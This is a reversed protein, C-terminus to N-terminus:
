QRFDVNLDTANAARDALRNRAPTGEKVDFSKLAADVSQPASQARITRWRRMGREILAKWEETTQTYSQNQDDLVVPNLGHEVLMRNLVVTNTRTNADKFPHLYELQKHLRSIDGLVDNSKRSADYFERLLKAIRARSAAESRGEYQFRFELSAGGPKPAFWFLEGYPVGTEGPVTRFGEPSTEAEHMKRTWEPGATGLDADFYDTNKSWGAADETSHARSAAQIAEYDDVTLRRGLSERALAHADAMSQLYGPERTKLHLGQDFVASGHHQRRLDIYQRWIEGRLGDFKTRMGKLEKRLAARDAVVELRLTQGAARKSKRSDHHRLGLLGTDLAKGAHLLRDVDDLLESRIVISSRRAVAANYAAVATALRGWNTTANTAGLTADLASLRQLVSRALTRSLVDTM